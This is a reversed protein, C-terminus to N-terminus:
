LNSAWNPIISKCGERTSFCVMGLSSGRNSVKLQYINQFVCLLPPEGWICCDIFYVILMWWSFGALQRQAIRNECFVRCFFLHIPLHFGAELLHLPLFLFFFGEESDSLRRECKIFNFDFVFNSLRIGQITLYWVM